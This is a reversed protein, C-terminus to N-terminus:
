KIIYIQFMKLFINLFFPQLTLNYNDSSTKGKKLVSMINNIQKMENRTIM